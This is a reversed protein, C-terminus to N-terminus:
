IEKGAITLSTRQEITGSTRITGATTIKLRVWNYQAPISGQVSATLADIQTWQRRSVSGDLTGVWADGVDRLFDYGKDSVQAINVLLEQTPASGGSEKIDFTHFFPAAM